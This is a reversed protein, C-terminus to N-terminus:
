KQETNAATNQTTNAATINETPKEAIPEDAPDATETKTDIAPAEELLKAAKVKSNIEGCIAERFHDLEAQTLTPIKELLLKDFEIRKQEGAAPIHKFQQEVAYYISKAISYTTNYQDTGMQKILAERKKSVYSVAVTVLYTAVVGLISLVAQVAINMVGNFLTNTM